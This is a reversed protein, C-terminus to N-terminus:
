LLIEITGRKLVIRDEVELKKLMRSVTERTTGLQDSLEQHTMKIVKNEIADAKVRLYSLLREDLSQFALANFADLADDFRKQYLNLIFENFSHYKRQWEGVLHAPILIATSDDEAVAKVRSKLQNIGCNISIICSELPYIYYLLFEKGADEKVVKVLGSLLIPVVKVYAGDRLVPSGAELSVVQCQTKIEEHLEKERLFRLQHSLVESIDM